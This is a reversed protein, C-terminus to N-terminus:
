ARMRLNGGAMTWTRKSLDGNVNVSGSAQGMQQRHNLERGALKVNLSSSASEPATCKQSQVHCIYTETNGLHKSGNYLSHVPFANARMTRLLKPVKSAPMCIYYTTIKEPAKDM